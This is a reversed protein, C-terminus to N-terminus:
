LFFINEINRVKLGLIHFLIKILKGGLERNCMWNMLGQMLCVIFKESSVRFNGISLIAYPISNGSADECLSQIVSRFVFKIFTNLLFSIHPNSPIHSVAIQWGIREEIMM